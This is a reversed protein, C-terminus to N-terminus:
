LEGISQFADTYMSSLAHTKNCRVVPVVVVIIIVIIVIVFVIAVVVIAIAVVITVTLVTKKEHKKLHCM